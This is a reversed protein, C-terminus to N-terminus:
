YRIQDALQLQQRAQLQAATIQLQFPCFSLVQVARAALIQLMEAAVAQAV